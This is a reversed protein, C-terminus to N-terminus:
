YVQDLITVTNVPDFKGYFCLVTNFHDFRIANFVAVM